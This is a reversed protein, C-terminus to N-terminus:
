DDTTTNDDGGVTGPITSTIDVGSKDAWEQAIKKKGFGENYNGKEKFLQKFHPKCYVVGEMSAYNGASLIKGCHSCKFCNKHFVKKDILLKETLYVKGYCVNCEDGQAPRDPKPSMGPSARGSAPSSRVVQPSVMPSLGAQPSPQNKKREERERQEEAARQKLEEMERRRAEEREQDRLKREAEETEKRKRAEEEREKREQDTETKGGYYKDMLKKRENEEKAKRELDKALFPNPKSGSGGRGSPGGRGSGGRGSGSSGSAKEEFAGRAGSRAKAIEELEASRGGKRKIEELERLEREKKEKEAQKLAEIRLRLAEEDSTANSILKKQEEKRKREL